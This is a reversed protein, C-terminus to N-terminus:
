FRVVAAAWTFGAGFAAFLVTSGPRIRGDGQALAQPIEAVVLSILAAAFLAARNM